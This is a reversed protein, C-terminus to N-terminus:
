YSSIVSIGGDYLHRHGLDCEPHIQDANIDTILNLWIKTAVKAIKSAYGYVNEWLGLEDYMVNNMADMAGDNAQDFSADITYGSTTMYPIEYIIVPAVTAPDKLTGFFDVFHANGQDMSELRITHSGGSLGAYVESAIFNTQPAEFGPITGETKEWPVLTDVVNGDIKVQFRGLHPPSTFMTDESRYGVVVNTGSFTWEMYSGGVAFSYATYAGRNGGATYHSKSSTGLDYDVSAWNGSTTAKGAPIWTDLFQNILLMRYFQRCKEQQKATAGTYRVSNFGVLSIFPNNSDTTDCAGFLNQIAYIYSQGNLAFNVLQKGTTAKIRNVYISDHTYQPSCVSGATYSDGFAVITDFGVLSVQDLIGTTIGTPRVTAVKSPQSRACASLVFLLIILINRM